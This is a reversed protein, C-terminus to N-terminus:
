HRASHQLITYRVELVRQVVEAKGEGLAVFVVEKAANVVPLSMTIRESPPKPSDSVALIWGQVGLSWVCTEIQSCM